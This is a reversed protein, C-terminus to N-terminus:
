KKPHGRARHGHGPTWSAVQLSWRGDDRRATHGALRWKRRRQATVWDDSVVSLLCSDVIHTIRQIWSAWDEESDATDEPPLDESDSADSRDEETPSHRPASQRRCAGLM